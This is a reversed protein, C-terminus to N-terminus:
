VASADTGCKDTGAHSEDDRESDSQTDREDRDVDCDGHAHGASSEDRM